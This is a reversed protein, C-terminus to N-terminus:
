LMRRVKDNLVDLLEGNETRWCIPGQVEKEGDTLHLKKRLKKALKSLFYLHDDRYRLHNGDVFAYEEPYSKRVDRDCFILKQGAKLFGFKVLISLNVKKRKSMKETRSVWIKRNKYEVKFPLGKDIFRQQLSIVFEKGRATVSSLKLFTSIDECALEGAGMEYLRDLISENNEETQLWKETPKWNDGSKDSQTEM